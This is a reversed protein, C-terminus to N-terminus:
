DQVGHRRLVERVAATGSAKAPPRAGAQLLADVVRPYDGTKRHWGNESGHTAWGLPTAHFDNATDELTPNFRLLAEVMALNGHWAAWHLPTAKHQGRATVPLGAELMLLVVDTDNNRAAHAIESRDSETLRSVLDPQTARLATLTKRDQLWCAAIFKAEDPSRDMLLRVIEPNGSGAAAQYVSANTVLTWHYITGGAEPNKMPFFENTVRLRICKPDRELHKRVQEINGVAAALLIDTECGRQVLYRSVELRDGLMYQAPTSEHDIDRANIDAGHDLLYAAVEVTSAFHLPTQGDGGRAHVLAPDGEVLERLKDMLGLRAAAHVDVIAGREIAYAALEPAATHLFGFGGAWWRSKANIDAGASLLVDLMGPSRAGNLLPSDFPGLPDNIRARLAEDQELLSRALSVDDSHIADKLEDVRSHPQSEDVMTTQEPSVTALVM